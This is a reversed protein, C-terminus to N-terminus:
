DRSRREADECIYDLEKIVERLVGISLRLYGGRRSIIVIEQMDTIYGIGSMASPYTVLDSRSEAKRLIQETALKLRPLQRLGADM